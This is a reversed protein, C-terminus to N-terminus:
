GGPRKHRRDRLQQLLKALDASRQTSPSGAATPSPSPSATDVPVSTTIPAPAAPAATEGAPSPTPTAVVPAVHVNAVEPHSVYDVLSAALVVGCIALVGIGAVIAFRVQSM